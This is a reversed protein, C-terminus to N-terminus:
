RHAYADQALAAYADRRASIEAPHALYTPDNTSILRMANLEAQQAWRKLHEMDHFYHEGLNEPLTAPHRVVRVGTTGKHLPTSCWTCVHDEDVIPVTELAFPPEM